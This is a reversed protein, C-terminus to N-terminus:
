RVGLPSSRCASTRARPRHQPGETLAASAAIALLAWRVAVLPVPLHRLPCRRRSPHETAAPPVHLAPEATTARPVNELERLDRPPRGRYCHDALVSLLWAAVLFEALQLVATMASADARNTVHSWQGGFGAPTARDQRTRQAVVSSRPATKVAGTTSAPLGGHAV